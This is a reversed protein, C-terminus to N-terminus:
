IGFRRTPRQRSTHLLGLFNTPARARRLWNPFTMLTVQIKLKRRTLPIPAIKIKFSEAGLRLATLRSLFDTLTRCASPWVFKLRFQGRCFIQLRLQTVKLESNQVFVSLPIDVAECSKKRRRRGGLRTFTGRAIVNVTRRDEVLDCTLVLWFANM